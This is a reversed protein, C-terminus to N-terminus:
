ALDEVYAAHRLTKRRSVLESYTGHRPQPSIFSPLWSSCATRHGACLCAQPLTLEQRRPRTQSTGTFGGTVPSCTAWKTVLGAGPPEAGGAEEWHKPCDCCQQSCPRPAAYARRQAETEKAKAQDRTGLTPGLVQDAAQLPPTLPSDSLAQGAWAPGPRAGLPLTNSGKGTAGLVQKSAEMLYWSTVMQVQPPPTPPM